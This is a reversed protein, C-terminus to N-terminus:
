DDSKHKFDIKYKSVLDILDSEINNSFIFDCDLGPPAEFISSEYINKIDNIFDSVRDEYFEEDCFDKITKDYGEWELLGNKEFYEMKREIILLEEIRDDTM